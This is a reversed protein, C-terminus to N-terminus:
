ITIDTYCFTITQTGQLINIEAKKAYGEQLASQNLVQLKLRLNKNFDRYLYSTCISSVRAESYTSLTLIQPTTQM